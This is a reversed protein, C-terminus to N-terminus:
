ACTPSDISVSVPFAGPSAPLILGPVKGGLVPPPPTCLVDDGTKQCIKKHLHLYVPCIGCSLQLGPPGPRHPVAEM